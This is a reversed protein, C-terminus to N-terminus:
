MNLASLEKFSNIIRVDEPLDPKKQFLQGSAIIKKGPFTEVLMRIYTDPDKDTFNTLLHFFLTFDPNSTSFTELDQISTNIGLYAVRYGNKKLLYHSILLPIEHFEGSPTFLLMLGSKEEIATTLGDIAIIIKKRVLNTSFHEQVPLVNGTMWLMGLKNLFPYVVHIFAKEFGLHLLLADFVKEFGEEDFDLAAEIFQNVFVEFSSHQNYKLSLNNIEESSM